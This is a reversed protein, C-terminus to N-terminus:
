HGIPNYGDKDASITEPCNPPSYMETYSDTEPCYYVCKNQWPNVRIYFCTQINPNVIPIADCKVKIRPMVDILREGIRIIGNRAREGIRTLGEGAARLADRLHDRCSPILLCGIAGVGVVEGVGIAVANSGYPDIHFLPNSIAYEYLNLSNIFGFPDNETFRGMISNYSRTRYHMTKLNGSDLTDLERGTFSYPNGVASATRATYSADMIHTAGYADYDYRELVTGNGYVIDLVAVPSYLHNHAYYYCDYNGARM